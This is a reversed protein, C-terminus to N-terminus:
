VSRKWLMGGQVVAIVLYTVLYMIRAADWGNGFVDKRWVGALVAFEGFLLLITVFHSVTLSQRRWAFQILLGLGVLLGVLELVLYARQLQEGGITPYGGIFVGLVLIYAGTLWKGLRRGQFVANALWIFGFSWTFFLGQRIHHVVRDLGVYPTAPLTTPAGSLIFLLLALNCVTVLSLFWAVPGHSGQRRALLVATGAAFFQALSALILLMPPPGSPMPVAEVMGAVNGPAQWRKARARGGEGTGSVGM